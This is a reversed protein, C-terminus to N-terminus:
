RRQAKEAAARIAEIEPDLDCYSAETTRVHAHGVSKGVLKVSAGAAIGATCYRHRIGHLSAVFELGFRAKMKLFQQGLANSNWAGGRTNLFVFGVAEMASEALVGKAGPGPGPASRAGAGAMSRLLGVAAAVLPVVKPKRTRKRGKHRPIIWLGRELDMDAWTARCLESLRCGTMRLWRLALAFPKNALRCLLEFDADSLDPRREAEPLRVTRFPHREIREGDFAWNFAARVMNAKLRRTSASRWSPVSEVWDALHYPHCDKVELPGYVRAFADLTRRVEISARACHVDAKLCHVLYLAIVDQVTVVLGRQGWLPLLGNGGIAGTVGDPPKEHEEIIRAEM